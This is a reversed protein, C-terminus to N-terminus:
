RGSMHQSLFTFKGRDELIPANPRLAWAIEDNRTLVPGEILGRMYKKSAQLIHDDAVTALVEGRALDMLISETSREEEIVNLQLNWGLDKLRVLM